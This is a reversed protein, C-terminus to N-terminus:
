KPCDNSQSCLAQAVNLLGYGYTNNPIHSGPTGGCNETTTKPEASKEIISITQDINGILSKNFSWLLATAGVVHPGAMSTGSWMGSEYRNGPVSSRITVGPASINPGPGGDFSSPGRSSFFAIKDNRHDFAGVSLTLGSHWAPPADITACSPGDNGASAVVFIGAKKMAELSPLIEDGKCGENKDCGWSNNIVHPAKSPEGDKLPNGSLPYPALFFEFCEIYSAPTGVGNDMNKCAMWQAKPAVGIQNGKGDDGVITGMTHTGHGFDDCPVQTDYGCRSFTHNSRSPGHIADHWNYNHDVGKSSKGRYQNILAPHDWQVGTDQGAVVIGEGRVHYTEWAKAAGIRVLNQEPGAAHTTLIGKSVPLKLKVNPNGMIRAIDQRVALANVLETTPNEVAIMNEIYFQRFRVKKSQLFDVLPGQTALATNRLTHYVYKGKEERSALSEAGSLDAQTKLVVLITGTIQNTTKFQDQVYQDIKPNLPLLAAQAYTTGIVSIVGMSLLIHKLKM